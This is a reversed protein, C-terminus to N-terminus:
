KSTLVLAIAGMAEADVELRAVEIRAVRSSLEFARENVVNIAPGILLKGM